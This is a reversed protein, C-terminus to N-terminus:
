ELADCDMEGPTEPLRRVFEGEDVGLLVVCPEITSTGPDTVAHLGGATWEDIASAQEIVCARDLQSGCAEAATAWLWFASAARLTDGTLAVDVEGLLEAVGSTAPAADGDSVPLFPVDVLVRSFSVDSAEAVCHPDYAGDGAIVAPDWDADAAARLFPLLASRCSGELRVAGAEARRATNVVGKWDPDVEVGYGIDAVVEFPLGSTLLSFSRRARM